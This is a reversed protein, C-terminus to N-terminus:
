RRYKGSDRIIECALSRIEWDEKNLRNQETCDTKYKALWAGQEVTMPKMNSCQPSAMRQKPLSM